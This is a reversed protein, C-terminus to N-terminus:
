HYARSIGKKLFDQITLWTNGRIGIKWLKVLLEEHPVTDFAKRFDYFLVHTLLKRRTRAKLTASACFIHDTTGRGTRFGAQCEHLKGERELKDRVVKNLCREYLKGICSILSIGRYNGMKSKDGKKFLSIIKAQRWREPMKGIAHLKKFLKLITRHMATNGYKLLENVIGDPGGASKPKLKATIERLNEM